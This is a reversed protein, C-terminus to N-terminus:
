AEPSDESVEWVPDLHPMRGKQQEQVAHVIRSVDTLYKRSPNPDLVSVKIVNCNADNQFAAVSDMTKNYKEFASGFILM